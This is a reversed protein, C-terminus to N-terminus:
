QDFPKGVKKLLDVINEAANPFCLTKSNERMTQRLKKDDMIKDILDVVNNDDLEKERLMFAAKKIVLAQANVEQHNNPVYPSPIIISPVSFACIETATTAGGRTVLLDTHRLMETQKVYPIIRINEDEPIAQRFAEYHEKGTVYLVQYPKNRLLKLTKLMIENVSRSGQSGMVFMVVPKSKLLRYEKLINTDETKKVTFMRPNGLLYVEKQKFQHRAEEYCVVIAAAYKELYLNARGAYANQEHLVVPIKLRHAAIIVPASVYGGFGIVVDPKFDILLTKAKDVAKMIQYASHMKAFVSGSLGSAKITKFLYGAAPIETAELHDETGIFLIESNNNESKIADALSLAPYVHGGTGGAAIVIRM